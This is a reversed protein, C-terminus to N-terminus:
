VVDSVLKAFDIVSARPRNHLMKLYDQNRPTLPLQDSM